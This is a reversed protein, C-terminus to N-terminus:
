ALIEHIPRGDDLVALLRGDETLLPQRSDIGLSHYMTAVLDAPTVPCDKPEAARLDSAGIVTGGEIGGGAIAASWVGPWHDRGGATNLRPTRGFEGTAVVLTSRLRGRQSLDDLLASFARDFTPLVGRKYDDFSSFPVNGHCDWSATNFVTEYMNVTVFRVGAEVLRRAALCSDGFRTAGYAERTAASEARLDLAQRVHPSMHRARSEPDVCSKVLASTGPETPSPAYFPDYAAGLMGAAQGHSINVGTNGIPGPLVVFPPAGARTGLVRSVVSGAHPVDEGTRVLRGTQVLQHGTEHIPAADHHLSRVLAVRDLRRALGPLHECIRVCPVRTAISGFPGRVEAPADPKPDFTELQSPGGVLLLLIVARDNSPLEAATATLGGCALGLGAMSGAKLFDRRTPVGLSNRDAPLMHMVEAYHLILTNESADGYVVCLKRKRVDCWVVDPSEVPIV